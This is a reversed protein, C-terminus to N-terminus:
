YEVLANAKGRRDSGRDRLARTETEKKQGPRVGEQLDTTNDDNERKKELLDTNEKRYDMYFLEETLRMLLRKERTGHV